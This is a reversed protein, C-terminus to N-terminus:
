PKFASPNLFLSVNATVRGGTALQSGTIQYRVVGPMREYALLQQALVEYSKASLAVTIRADNVNLQYSTYFVGQNTNAEILPAVRSAAIHKALLTKLNVLQYQFTLFEDQQEKSIQSAFQQIEEDTSKIQAKLFPKYGLALGLYSVLFVLFVFLMFLLLRWAGRSAAIKERSISSGINASLPNQPM